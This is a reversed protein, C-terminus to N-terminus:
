TPEVTIFQAGASEEPVYQEKAPSASYEKWSPFLKQREEIEERTAGAPSTLFALFKQQINVEPNFEDLWLFQGEENIELFWWRGDAGIAFDLSGFCIGSRRAFELVAKAIEPPTEITRVEVLGQGCDQRWDLARNPNHLSYSYVTSGLLVMRVDFEKEVMEQYIAPAYTLVEDRPLQHANLEFTETVAITGAARQWVHPFFTKCINRGGRLELFNRVSQPSNSMLTEPVKMGCQKALLLQVSKNNIFRSASYPNICRVPLMELLYLTNWNFWRYEGEAFKRDAENTNPHQLPSNPRRIWVVDGSDVSHPGLTIRADGNFHVSSQMEPKWGTGPWCAVQYGARELAWKLPATHNDNEHALVIIKM